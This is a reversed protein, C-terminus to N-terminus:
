EYGLTAHMNSDIFLGAPPSLGSWCSMHADVSLGRIAVKQLSMMPDIWTGCRGLAHLMGPNEDKLQVRIM